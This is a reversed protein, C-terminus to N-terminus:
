QNAQLPRVSFIERCEESCFHFIVEGQKFLYASAPDVLMHCVPDTYMCVGSHSPQIRLEGAVVPKRINKLVIERIATFEINDCNGLQKMMGESCLITGKGAQSAIRSALNVAPGFLSGEKELVLGYHIGAHVQLFEPEASCLQVLKIATAAIDCANPSVIVLQDGVRELLRASGCMAKEAIELYRNVTIMAAAAGHIETLATYGNLDAMLIALNFEKDM